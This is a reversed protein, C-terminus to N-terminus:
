LVHGGDSVLVAGTTYGSVENSLLVAIQAAMEEPRAFRGLPTGGEAIKAFAGERGLKAELGRFWDTGYWIPTEVGGPAIANVRIRRPAGELAAIKALHIVAAKSTGYACLGPLPKIGAASAVLVASGGARLARMAAQLTLFVGDLNVSMVQRWEAFPMDTIPGVGPVGANVVAHDLDGLAASAWLESDGVDGAIRVVECNFRVQELAEADRDVLVLRGAGGEALHRACALGIGSAAGTILTSTGAFNM